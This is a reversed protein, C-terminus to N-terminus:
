PRASKNNNVLDALTQAIEIIAFPKKFVRLAPLQLLEAETYTGIGGTMFCACIEHNLEKLARLTQPGDLGPMLVDLLVLDIDFRHRQYTALAEHGDAALWVAFGHQQLGDHLVSRVLDNDDVVLIGAKRPLGGFVKGIRPSPEHGASLPTPGHPQSGAM